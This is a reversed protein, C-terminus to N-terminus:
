CLLSTWLLIVIVEDFGFSFWRRGEKEVQVIFRDTLPSKYSSARDEVERQTLQRMMGIIRKIDTDMKM